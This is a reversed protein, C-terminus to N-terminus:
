AKNAGAQLVIDLAHRTSGKGHRPNIGTAKLLVSPAPETRITTRNGPAWRHFCTRPFEFARVTAATGGSM